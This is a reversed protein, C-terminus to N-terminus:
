IFTDLFLHIRTSTIHKCPKPKSFVFAMCTCTWKSETSSYQVTYNSGSKGTLLKSFDTTPNM